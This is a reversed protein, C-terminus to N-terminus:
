DARELTVPRAQHALLEVLVVIALTRPWDFVDRAATRKELHAFLSTGRVAELFVRSDTKALPEVAAATPRARLWNLM